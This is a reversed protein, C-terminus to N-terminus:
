RAEEDLSHSSLLKASCATVQLRTAASAESENGGEDILSRPGAVASLVDHDDPPPAQGLDVRQDTDSVCLSAKNRGTAVPSWPCAALALRRWKSKRNPHRTHRRYKAKGDHKKEKADGDKTGPMRAPGSRSTSWTGTTTIPTSSM